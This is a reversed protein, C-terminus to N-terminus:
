RGIILREGFFIPLGEAIIKKRTAQVDYNVRKIQINKKDTDYICYAAKPDGDRPQGVSGVNIIYKNGEKINILQEAAYYLQGNKDSMFAGPIHTHGIFCVNNELLAFTKSAAYDDVM